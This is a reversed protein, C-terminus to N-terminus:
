TKDLVVQVISARGEQLNRALNGAMAPFESGMIVHIGLPPPPGVAAAAAARIETLWAIGAPTHDTWSRVRFGQTELATRMAEPTMLFSTKPGASWPVPFHLEGSGAVIDHIAFRGGPRTIRFAESYMLGRDAINMATHQTWALDVSEDDFPLALADGCEFSVRDSLGSREALYTAADVFSPNLDIGHVQCGFTAGLYRSPGGLGSGIDVVRAGRDIGVADAFEITSALGRVHFQDLPALDQPTLQKGDLGAAALAREIRDRLDGRGYHEVVKTAEIM